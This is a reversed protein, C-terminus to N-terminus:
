VPRNREQEEKKPREHLVKVVATVWENEADEDELEEEKDESEEDQMKSWEEFSEVYRELMDRVNTIGSEGGNNSATVKTEGRLARDRQDTLEVLDFTQTDAQQIEDRRM